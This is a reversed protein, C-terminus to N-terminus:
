CMTLSFIYSNSAKITLGLDEPQFALVLKAYGAIWGANSHTSKLLRSEVGEGLWNHTSEVPDTLKLLPRLIQYFEQIQFYKLSNILHAENLISVVDEDNLPQFQHQQM